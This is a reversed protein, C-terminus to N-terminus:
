KCYCNCTNCSNQNLIFEVEVYKKDDSECETKCAVSCGSEDKIKHVITNFLVSCEDPIVVLEKKNLISVNKWNVNISILSIILIGLIIFLISLWPFKKRM